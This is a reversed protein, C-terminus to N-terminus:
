DTDNSQERFSNFDIETDGDRFADGRNM